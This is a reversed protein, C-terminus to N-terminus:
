TRWKEATNAARTGIQLHLASIAALTQLDKASACLTKIDDALGLFRSLVPLATHNSVGYMDIATVYIKNLLVIL